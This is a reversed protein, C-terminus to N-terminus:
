EGNENANITGHQFNKYFAFVFGVISISGNLIGYSDFWNQSTLRTFIYYEGLIWGLLILFSFIRPVKFSYYIPCLFLLTNVIPLPLFILLTFLISVGKSSSFSEPDFNIAALILYYLLYKCFIFAILHLPTPKFM